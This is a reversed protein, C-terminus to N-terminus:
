VPTSAPMSESPGLARDGPREAGPATRPQQVGTCATTLRQRRNRSGSPRGRPRITVGADKLCRQATGRSVGAAEAVDKTGKGSSYLSVMRRLTEQQDPREELRGDAGRQYGYPIAGVHKGEAKLRAFAESILRGPAM